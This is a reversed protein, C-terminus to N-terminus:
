LYSITGECTDAFTIWHASDSLNFCRLSFTKLGKELYIEVFSNDVYIDVQYHDQDLGATLRKLGNDVDVPIQLHSRDLLITNNETDISMTWYDEQDGFKVWQNHDGSMTFSLHYHNSKTLLSRDKFHDTKTFLANIDDDVYSCLRHNVLKLSRTMTLGHKWMEEDTPLNQEGCGFWAALMPTHDKGYFPQPAYYDFGCDGEDMAEMTFTLHDVDLHGILYVTPFQNHYKLTEEKLGMPCLFLVDKGDIEIIGPCEIMYGTDIPLSIEGAFTWQLLDASQYLLLAGEKNKTKGGLLMYYMNGRAFVFPDRIEGSMFDPAGDIVPNDQYKKIVGDQDMIALAQKPIKRQPTKYNATYFLYLKGEKEIANGSYCGNKEYERDPTLAIGEDHWHMLDTSTSHGWHKMGHNPEFPFWQYFFHYVGNFYSLGNPDNMLGCKPYIHYDPLYRSQSVFDSLEQLYPLHKKEVFTYKDFSQLKM